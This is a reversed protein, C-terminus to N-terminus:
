LGIGGGILAGVITYTLINTEAILLHTSHMM